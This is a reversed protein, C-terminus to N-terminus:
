EDTGPSTGDRPMEPDQRMRKARVRGWPVAGFACQWPESIEYTTLAIM